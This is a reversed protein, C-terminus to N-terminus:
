SGTGSGDTCSATIATCSRRTSRASTGISFESSPATLAVSSASANSVSSTWIVPSSTWAIWWQRIARSGTSSSRIAATAEWGCALPWHAM